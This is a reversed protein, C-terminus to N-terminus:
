NSVTVTKTYDIGATIKVTVDSNHQNDLIIRQTSGTYLQLHLNNAGGYLTQINCLGYKGFSSNKSCKGNDTYINLYTGFSSTNITVKANGTLAATNAAETTVSYARREGPKMTFTTDILPASWKTTEPHTTEVLEAQNPTPPPGSPLSNQIKGVQNQAANSVVGVGVGFIDLPSSVFVRGLPGLAM